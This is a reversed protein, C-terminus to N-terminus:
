PLRAAWEKWDKIETGYNVSSLEILPRLLLSRGNSDSRELAAVLARGATGKDPPSRSGIYSVARAAAARVLPVPDYLRDCLATLSSRDELTALILACQARVTPEEKDSLGRRSAELICDSRAGAKVLAAACQAANRRIGTDSSSSLYRCIPELPTDARGLLMLGLLANSVVEPHPDDLAAILPSQAEVDRTFGLACAAIVRNHLPGSELQEILEARRKHTVFELNQELLSAKRRDEETQAAIIFNSWVRISADLDTLFKGIPDPQNTAEIIQGAPVTRGDSTTDKSQPSACAGIAGLCLGVLWASRAPSAAIWAAAICRASRVSSM